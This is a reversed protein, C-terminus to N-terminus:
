FLDAAADFIRKRATPRKMTERLGTKVQIISIPIM